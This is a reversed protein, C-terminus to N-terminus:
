RDPTAFPPTEEPPAQPRRLRPPEYEVPYDPRPQMMSRIWKVADNILRRNSPSFAPKWGPVPPHPKRALDRPLGYQIILSQEPDDYNILPWDPDLQLRELILLNTYRVREDRFNRRHLFFDGADPGGHCRSTACTNILWTDHVRQRFLNLAYPESNVRIQPYMERARLEFMLRVIELPRDAAARFLANRGAQTSPILKDTGYKEILERVTDPTITVRVPHEFDLEYVRIINVDEHSILTSPLIDSPYVPGSRPKAAADEGLGDSQESASEGQRSVSGSADTEDKGTKDKQAPKQLLALHAEVIRLLERAEYIEVQSLLEDLERKALAYERRDYLWRCLTLHADYMGPQISAKFERYRQEVTPTLVVHSVVQRKIKARVGEIEIVVHDYGDEIIVGERTQGDLFVVIGTQGPEPETLRVIQLLRSKAFSEVEGRRNRVVIVDNDELEIVGHVETHRNVRLVVRQLQANVEGDGQDPSDVFAAGILLTVVICLLGAIRM